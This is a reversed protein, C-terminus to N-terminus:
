EYRLWAYQHPRLELAEAALDVGTGAILDYATSPLASFKDRSIYQPADHFNCLVLLKHKRGFRQYGLVHKNGTHFGVLRGGALEETKKRINVLHRVGAFVKGAQTSEDLREQYRRAPYAPRHVWRADSGKEPDRLMNYDNLQGVEDGLYLLAIGGTSFTVSYLLLLREVGQVEGSELGALSAATGAIRCDGTYKNELFPVGRAFSGYHRNVYFANLFRRHDDSNIKLEYADKDSFTWRIDNHCRIYNVWHCRDNDALNHYRELAHQLMDVNRTALAEWYLSM